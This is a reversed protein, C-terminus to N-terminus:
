PKAAEIWRLYKRAPGRRMISPRAFRRTLYFHQLCRVQSNEGARVLWSEALRMGPPTAIWLTNFWWISEDAIFGAACFLGIRLEVPISMYPPDLIVVDFSGEAFPPLWADAVVHPRTAPDIDMSLGWQARGGFLHLVRKGFTAQQLLWEVNRPFAWGNKGSRAGTGKPCWLIEPRNTGQKM